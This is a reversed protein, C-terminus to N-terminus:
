FAYGLLLKLNPNIGMGFEKEPESELLDTKTGIYIDINLSPAFVFGRPKGAGFKFGIGPSLILGLVNFDDEYEDDVSALWSFEHRFKGFGAGTDIFFGVPTGDSRSFPLWRLHASVYYAPNLFIAYGADITMSLHPNLVREYCVMFGFLDTTGFYIANTHAEEASILGGITIALILLLLVKKM